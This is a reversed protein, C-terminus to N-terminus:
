HFKSYLSKVRTINAEKDLNGRGLLYEALQGSFYPALSVGKTGLGNFVLINKQFPHEGIIPRRDVTSPRIGWDQHAVEFPINLLRGVKQELEQRGKTTTGPAPDKLDYTAGAQSELKGTGIIYAGRNYIRVLPKETKITAVEGKLARIPLADFYKGKLTHIGTCYIVKEATLNEYAIGGTAPIGMKDEAWWENSYGDRQKLMGRVGELFVQTDIHGCRSFLIGGIPDNVENGFTPGTTVGAVYEKLPSDASKGMWENQEEIKLFPTYLPREHFFRAGLEKEAERYFKFLYPFAEDAKWTKVIRKGTVPNFLGPAVWSARNLAPVDFAMVRKGRRLLQLALCAGALGLGVIIYDVQKAM